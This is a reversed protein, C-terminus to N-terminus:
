PSTAIDSGSRPSFLFNSKDKKPVPGLTRLQVNIVPGVYISSTVLVVIIVGTM